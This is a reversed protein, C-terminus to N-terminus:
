TVLSSLVAVSTLKKLWYAAEAQAREPSTLDTLAAIQTFHKALAKRDALCGALAVCPVEFKRCRAALEGVGKGMLTSRDMRGEGTIVLDAHRIKANLRAADAVLDFGPKLKAGPFAALGFGLGGAAGAGPLSAFNKGLVEGVVKALRRLAKEARAFDGPALGKQPGYVRTCGHQGLLRNQVDVAVVVQRPWIRKLPREIRVLRDLEIWHEIREGKRDFFKWGLGCALGFGGDNTASGGIGVLCRRAGRDAAARLLAALGRTDLNFSHFRGPPLMALGAVRASEIIATKNADDWWWNARCRRGAADATVTKVLRAPQLGALVAGFGDGGDSILLLELEDDPRKRHWGSAIAEAAAQATLTGKFKDPAILVKLPM